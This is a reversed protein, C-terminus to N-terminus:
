RIALLFLFLILLNNEGEVFLLINRCSVQKNYLSVAIKDGDPILDHYIVSGFPDKYTIRFTLMYVDEIDDEKHELLCKLSNYLVQAILYTSSYIFFEYRLYIYIYIGVLNWTYSNHIIM